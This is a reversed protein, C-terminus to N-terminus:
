FPVLTAGIEEKCSFQRWLMILSGLSATQHSHKHLNTHSYKYSITCGQSGPQRPYLAIYNYM